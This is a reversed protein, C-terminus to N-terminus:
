WRHQLTRRDVTECIGCFIHRCFTSKTMLLNEKRLHRFIKARDKALDLTISGMGIFVRHKRMGCRNELAMGGGGQEQSMFDGSCGVGGEQMFGPSLRLVIDLSFRVISRM